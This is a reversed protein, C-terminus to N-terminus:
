NNTHKSNITAILRRGCFVYYTDGDEGAKRMLASWNPFDFKKVKGNEKSREADHSYRITSYSQFSYTRLSPLIGYPSHLAACENNNYMSWQGDEFLFVPCRATRFIDKGPLIDASEEGADGKRDRIRSICNIPDDDFVYKGFPSAGLWDLNGLDLLADLRNERSYFSLLTRAAWFLTDYGDCKIYKVQKDTLVKGIIITEM